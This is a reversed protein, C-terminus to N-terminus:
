ADLHLHSLSCIISAEGGGRLPYPIKIYFFILIFNKQCDWRGMDISTWGRTKSELPIM